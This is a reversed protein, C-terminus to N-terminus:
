RRNRLAMKGKYTRTMALASVELMKQHTAADSPVRSVATGAFQAGIVAAEMNTLGLTTCADSFMELATVMKSNRDDSM